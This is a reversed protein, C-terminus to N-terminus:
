SSQTPKPSSLTEFESMDKQKFLRRPQSMVTMWYRSGNREFYVSSITEKHTSVYIRKEKTDSNISAEGDTSDPLELTLREGLMNILQTTIWCEDDLNRKEMRHMHDSTRMRLIKFNDTYRLVCEFGDIFSRSQNYWVTTDELPVFEKPPNPTVLQLDMDHFVQRSGGVLHVTDDTPNKSLFVTEFTSHGNVWNDNKIYLKFHVYERAKIFKRQRPTLDWIDTVAIGQFGCLMTIDESMQYFTYDWYPGINCVGKVKIQSGRPGDPQLDGFVLDLVSTDLVNVEILKDEKAKSYYEIVYLCPTLLAASATLTM